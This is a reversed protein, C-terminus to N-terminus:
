AGYRARRKKEGGILSFFHYIFFFSFIKDAKLVVTYLAFTNVLVLLLAVRIATLDSMHYNSANTVAPFRVYLDKRHKFRQTRRRDSAHPVM